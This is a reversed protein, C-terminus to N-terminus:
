KADDSHAKENIGNMKPPLERSAIRMEEIRALEPHSCSGENHAIMADFRIPGFAKPDSGLTRSPLLVFCEGAEYRYLVTRQALSLSEEIMVTQLHGSPMIITLHLANGTIKLCLTWADAIGLYKAMSSLDADTVATVGRVKLNQREEFDRAWLGRKLENAYESQFFPEGLLRFGIGLAVKCLFRIDFDIQIPVTNESKYDKRGRIYSLERSQDQDEPDPQPFLFSLDTHDESTREFVANTVCRKAHKFAIAFSAVATLQWYEERSTLAMYARGRDKKKRKLIDGGAYTKFDERDELHVYFIHEGAPGLWRECVQGQHVPFKEDWGMFALPVISPLSPDLYRHASLSVCNSVLWSKIFAGDVFLGCNNNCTKCVDKAKFPFSLADGGLADPWTHELSLDDPHVDRWCYICRRKEAM